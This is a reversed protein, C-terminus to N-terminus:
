VCRCDGMFNADKDLQAQHLRTLIRISTDHLLASTSSSASVNSLAGGSSSSALGLGGGMVSDRGGGGNGGVGSLSQFNMSFSKPVSMRTDSKRRKEQTDLTNLTVGSVSKKCDAHTSVVCDKLFTM